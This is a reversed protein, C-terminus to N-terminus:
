LFLTTFHPSSEDPELYHGTAPKQSCPLSGEPEYFSPSNKVLEAVRLKELLVRSWPITRYSLQLKPMHNHFQPGSTM